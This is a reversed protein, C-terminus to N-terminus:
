DAVQNYFTKYIHPTSSVLSILQNHYTFRNWTNTFYGSSWKQIFLLPPLYLSLLYKHMIKLFFDNNSFWYKVHMIIINEVFHILIVTGNLTSFALDLLQIYAQLTHSEIWITLMIIEMEPICYMAHYNRVM